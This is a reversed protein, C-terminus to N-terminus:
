AVNKQGAAKSLERERQIVEKALRIYSQSGRCNMDYIIAPLGYSPAESLRVNRPIVTRYVKDGFHERVDDQVASSLRNRRDYMTLVIGHIDLAPNFNKRVREITKVLHSLGELAYFECQLPVIVSDVAVLANLTILNLSPPCDIIVYNYPLSQHLRDKLRYERNEENVLEIEAGSLHVSSPVISLRPVKTEMVCDAILADEFLIDYMSGKIDSRRIGLGTTANGQADLDMLLVKQGIAALATALNIATTTKGVGGKQNTVALIRPRAANKTNMLNM